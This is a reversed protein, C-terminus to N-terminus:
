KIRRIEYGLQKLISTMISKCNIICSRLPKSIDAMRNEVHPNSGVSELLDYFRKKIFDYLELDFENYKPIVQIDEQTYHKAKTTVNVLPIAPINWWNFVYSLLLFSSRDGIQVKKM